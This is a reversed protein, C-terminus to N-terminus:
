AMILMARETTRKTLINRHLRWNCARFKAAAPPAALVFEVDGIVVALPAKGDGVVPPQELLDAELAELRAQAPERDQALPFTKALRERIEFELPDRSKRRSINVPQQAVRRDDPM